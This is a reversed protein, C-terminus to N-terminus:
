SSWFSNTSCHYLTRDIPEATKALSNVWSPIEGVGLEIALEQCFDCCNKSFIDYTKGKWGYKMVGLMQKLQLNTLYCDGLYISECYSHRPNERPSSVFIGDCGFSYEIGFIELAAHYIGGNALTRTFANLPAFAESLNYVHLLVPVGETSPAKLVNKTLSRNRALTYNRALSHNRAISYTSSMSRNMKKMDKLLCPRRLSINSDISQKSAKHCIVQVELSGQTEMGTNPDVGTIWVNPMMRTQSKLRGLKMKFCSIAQNYSKDYNCDDFVRILLMGDRKGKISFSSSKGGFIPDRTNHCTVTEGMLEEKKNKGTEVTCVQVYPNKVNLNEGRLIRLKFITNLKSVSMEENEFQSSCLPTELSDGKRLKKNQVAVPLNGSRTLEPNLASRERTSRKRILAYSM